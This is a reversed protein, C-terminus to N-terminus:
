VGPIEKLLTHTSGGSVQQGQALSATGLNLNYSGDPGVTGDILGVGGSTEHRVWCQTTDAVAALTAAASYVITIVGNTNAVSAIPLSLVLTGTAAANASAPQAGTRVRAFGGTLKTVTDAAQGNVTADSLKTNKPM